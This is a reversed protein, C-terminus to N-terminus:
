VLNLYLQVRRIKGNQFDYFAACKGYFVEGKKRTGLYETDQFCNWEIDLEAGVKDGQVVINRFSIKEHIGAHGSNKGANWFNVLDDKGQFTGKFPHIFEAAPDYYKDFFASKDPANSFEKEYEAFWAADVM